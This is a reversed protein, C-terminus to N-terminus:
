NVFYQLDPWNIDRTCVPNELEVLTGCQLQVSDPMTGSAGSWWRSYSGLMGAFLARVFIMYYTLHKDRCRTQDEVRITNPTESVRGLPVRNKM